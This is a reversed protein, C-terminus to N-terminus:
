RAYFQKQYILGDFRCEIYYGIPKGMDYIGKYWLKGNAYYGLWSGYKKGHIYEGKYSLQKDYNCSEWHGHRKGEADYQNLNTQMFDNKIYSIIAIINLMIVWKNVWILPKKVTYIVTIPIGFGLAMGTVM